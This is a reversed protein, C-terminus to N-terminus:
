LLFLYTTPPSPYTISYPKDGPLLFLIRLPHTCIYLSCFALHTHTLTHTILILRFWAPIANGAFLLWCGFTNLPLPLIPTCIASAHLFPLPCPFTHASPTEMHLLTQQCLIYTSWSYPLCLAQPTPSPCSLAPLRHHRLFVHAARLARAYAYPFARLWCCCYVIFRLALGMFWRLLVFTPILVLCWASVHPPPPPCTSGFWVLLVLCPPSHVCCVSRYHIIPSPPLPYHYLRAALGDPLVTLCPTSSPSTTTPFHEKRRDFPIWHDLFHQLLLAVNVVRWGTFRAVIHSPASYGRGVTWRGCAIFFYLILSAYVLHLRVGVVVFYRLLWLSVCRWAVFFWRIFAVGVGARRLRLAFWLRCRFWCACAYAMDTPPTHTSSFCFGYCM